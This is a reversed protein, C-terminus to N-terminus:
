EVHITKHLAVITLHEQEVSLALMTLLLLVFLLGLLIGGLMGYHVTIYWVCMLTLLAWILSVIFMTWFIHTYGELRRVIYRSSHYRFFMMAFIAVYIIIIAILVPISQLSYERYISKNSMDASWPMYDDFTAM